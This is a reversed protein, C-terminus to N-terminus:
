LSDLLVAKQNPPHNRHSQSRAPLPLSQHLIPLQTIEYNLLQFDFAFQEAGPGPFASTTIVSRFAFLM